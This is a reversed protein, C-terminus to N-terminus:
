KPISADCMLPTLRLRSKRSMVDVIGSHGRLCTCFRYYRFDTELFKSFDFCRLFRLRPHCKELKLLSGKRDITSFLGTHQLLSVAANSKVTNGDYFFSNGDGMMTEFLFLLLFCLFVFLPTWSLVSGLGLIFICQISASYVDVM